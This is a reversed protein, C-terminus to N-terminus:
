DRMHGDGHQKRKIMDRLARTAEPNLQKMKAAINEGIGRELVSPKMSTNGLPRTSAETPAKNNENM